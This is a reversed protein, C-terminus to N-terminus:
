VFGAINFLRNGYSYFSVFMFVFIWPLFWPFLGQFFARDLGLFLRTYEFGFSFSLLTQTQNAIWPLFWPFSFSLGLDLGLILFLSTDFSFSLLTWLTSHLVKAPQQLVSRWKWNWFSIVFFVRVYKSLYWTWFSTTKPHMVQFFITKQLETPDSKWPYSNPCGFGVTEVRKLGFWVWKWGSVCFRVSGFRM